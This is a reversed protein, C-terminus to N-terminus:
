THMVKKDGGPLLPKVAEQYGYCKYKPFSSMYLIYLFMYLVLCVYFIYFMYLVQCIADVCLYLNSKRALTM